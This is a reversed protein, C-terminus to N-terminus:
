SEPTTIVALFLPWGTRTDLVRLCYPRNVLFPEPREVLATELFAETLAAGVTGKAGVKLRVQQIVKNAWAGPSIGSLDTLDVIGSVDTKGTLDLTPMEVEVSDPTASSLADHVQELTEATFQRPDAARLPVIVDMALVDDYPLRIARWDTGDARRATVEGAMGLVWRNEFEVERSEEFVQRWAAAFLLADQLVLSGEEPAEVASEEILGATHKRAWADLDAKAEAIAVREVPMGYYQAVTEVYEQRPELGDGLLLVRAVQHVVPSAPPEDPLKDPLSDYGALAQRLAGFAASRETGTLGFKQDVSTKSAGAAGDGAMVLASALSSPSLVSNGESKAIIEWAIRQSVAAAEGVRPTDLPLDRLEATGNVQAASGSTAPNLACASLPVLSAATLLARRSMTM